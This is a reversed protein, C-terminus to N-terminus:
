KLLSDNEDSDGHVDFGRRWPLFKKTVNEDFNPWVDSGRWRRRWSVFTGVTARGNAGLMPKLPLIRHVGDDDVIQACMRKRMVRLDVDLWWFETQASFGRRWPLCRFDDYDGREPRSSCSFLRARRIWPAMSLLQYKHNLREDSSQKHTSDVAGRISSWWWRKSWDSTTM